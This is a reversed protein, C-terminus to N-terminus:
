MGTTFQMRTPIMIGTLNYKGEWMLLKLEDQKNGMIETSIYICIFGKTM